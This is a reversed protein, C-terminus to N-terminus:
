VTKQLYGTQLRRYAKEYIRYWSRSCERHSLQYSLFDAYGRGFVQQIQREMETMQFPGREPDNCLLQYVVKPFLLEGLSDLKAFDNYLEVTRDTHMQQILEEPSQTLRYMYYEIHYGRVRGVVSKGAEKVTAKKEAESFHGKNRRVKDIIYKLSDHDMLNTREITDLPAQPLGREAIPLADYVSVDLGKIKHEIQHIKNMFAVYRMRYTDYPMSTQRRVMDEFDKMISASMNHRMMVDISPGKADAMQFMDDITVYRACRGDPLVFMDNRSPRIDPRYRMDPAAMSAYSRQRELDGTSWIDPIEDNGSLSAAANRGVYMGNQLQFTLRMDGKMEPVTECNMFEDPYVQSLFSLAWMVDNKKGKLHLVNISKRYWEVTVYSLKFMLNRYSHILADQHEWDSRDLRRLMSYILNGANLEMGVMAQTRLKKEYESLRDSFIPKQRFWYKPVAVHYPRKQEAQQEM